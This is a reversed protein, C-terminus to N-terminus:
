IIRWRGFYNNECTYSPFLYTMYHRDKAVKNRYLLFTKFVTYMFTMIPSQKSFMYNRLFIAANTNNPFVNVFDIGYM